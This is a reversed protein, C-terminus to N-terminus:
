VKLTKTLSDLTEVSQDNAQSIKNIERVANAIQRTGDLMSDMNANTESTVDVLKTMENLIERSGALMETSGSKVNATIDNLRKIAELVQNGGSAQELMANQIVQEQNDLKAIYDQMQVFQKEVDSTASTISTIKDKLSKLVNSINKGQESSEEALKRIEDAVVAFGKGADGAHAAEIAANMALLNTQSAINQIVDAAELLGESAGQVEANVSAANQMLNKANSSEDLLDQMTKANENLINSVSRINAVMEEISSASEVITASQTEINSNLSEINYTIQNVTAASENVAAAQSEMSQKVTEISRSMKETTTTTESVNSVLSRSIHKTSDVNQLVASILNKTTELQINMDNMLSGIEERSIVPMPKASYDGSALNASFDKMLILRKNINNLLVYIDIVTITVGLLGAPLFKTLMYVFFNEHTIQDFKSVLGSFLAAMALTVLTIVVLFKAKFPMGKHEELFPLFSLFNELKTVFLIYFSVSFGWICFITGMTLYFARVPPLTFSCFNLTISQLPYFFGLFFIICAQWVKTLKLIEYDLVEGRNYGAVMKKLRMFGLIFSLAVAPYFLFLLGPNTIYELWDKTNTFVILRSAIAIAVIAILEGVLLYGLILFPVKTEQAEDTSTLNYTFRSTMYTGSPTYNNAPPKGERNLYRLRQCHNKATETNSCYKERWKKQVEPRQGEFLKFFPCMDYRECKAM